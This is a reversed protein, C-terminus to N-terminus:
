AAESSSPPTAGSRRTRLFEEATKTGKSTNCWACAPVINSIWNTGGRSIPIIHDMTMDGGGSCYACRGGFEDVKTRWEEVTYRGVANVERSRRIARAARWLEPHNRAYERFYARTKEPNAARRKASRGNEYEPHALRWQRNLENLRDSNKARWVKSTAAKAAKRKAYARKDYEAFRERNAARKAAGEALLRERHRAYFERQLQRHREPDVGM